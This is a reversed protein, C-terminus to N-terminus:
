SFSSSLRQGDPNAYETRRIIPVQNILCHILIDSNEVFVARLFMM